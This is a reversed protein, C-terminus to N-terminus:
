VKNSNAISENGEESKKEVCNYTPHSEFCKFCTHNYRCQKDFLCSQGKTHYQYCFGKRIYMQLNGIAKGQRQKIVLDQSFQRLFASHPVFLNHIRPDFIRHPSFIRHLIFLVLGLSYLLRDLDPRM